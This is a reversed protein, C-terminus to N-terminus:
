SFRQVLEQGKRGLEDSRALFQELIKKSMANGKQIHNHICRLSAELQSDDLNGKSSLNDLVQIIWHDGFALSIPGITFSSYVFFQIWILNCSLGIGLFILDSISEPDVAIAGMFTIAFLIETTCFRRLNGDFFITEVKRREKATCHRHWFLPATSFAVFGGLLIIVATLPNNYWTMNTMRWIIKYRAKQLLQLCM